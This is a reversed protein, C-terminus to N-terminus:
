TSASRASERGPARGWFIERDAAQEVFELGRDGPFRLQQTQNNFRLNRAKDWAALRNECSLNIRGESGSVISMTDMRGKFVVVPEAVFAWAETLLGLSITAARGQYNEQLALSLLNTDVGSLLLSIGNAGLQVDEDVGSIGGFVGVGAYSDGGPTVLTRDATSVFITGSSFELKALVVPRVVGAVSATQM